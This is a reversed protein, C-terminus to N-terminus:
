GYQLSYPLPIRVKGGKVKTELLGFLNINNFALFRAVELQKNRKNLGRVNWALISNMQSISCTGM